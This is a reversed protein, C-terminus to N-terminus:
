IELFHTIQPVVGNAAPVLGLAASRVMKWLRKDATLRRQQGCRFLAAAAPVFEDSRPVLEIAVQLRSGPRPHKM